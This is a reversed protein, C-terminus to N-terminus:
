IIYKLAVKNFMSFSCIKNVIKIMERRNDKVKIGLIIGCIFNETKLDVGSEYISMCSPWFDRQCLNLVISVEHSWYIRYNTNLKTTFFIPIPFFPPMFYLFLSTRSLSSFIVVGMNSSTMRRVTM